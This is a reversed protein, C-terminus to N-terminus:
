VVQHSGEMALAAGVQDAVAVSVLLHDTPVRVGPAPTLVFYGLVTGGGRVPLVVGRHPLGLDGTSWGVSGIRVQGDPEVRAALGPDDRTFECSRLELLATLERRAAGVM